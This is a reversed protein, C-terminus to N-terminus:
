LSDFLLVYTRITDIYYILKQTESNELEIM